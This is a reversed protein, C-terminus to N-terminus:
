AVILINHLAVGIIPKELNAVAKEIIQYNVCCYKVFVILAGNASVKFYLYLAASCFVFVM